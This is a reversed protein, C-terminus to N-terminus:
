FQLYYSTFLYTDGIQAQDGGDINIVSDCSLCRVIPTRRPVMSTYLPEAVAFRTYKNDHDM